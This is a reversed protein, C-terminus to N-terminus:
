TKNREYLPIIAINETVTESQSLTVIYLKFVNLKKQVYLLGNIERDRNRSNIEYNAQIAILNTNNLYIKEPKQFKKDAKANSNLLTILEAKELFYFYKYM